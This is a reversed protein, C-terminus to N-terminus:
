WEFKVQGIADAEALEKEVEKKAEQVTKLAIKMRLEQKCLALYRTEADTEADPKDGALKRIMGSEVPTVGRTYIVKEVAPMESLKEEFERMAMTKSM